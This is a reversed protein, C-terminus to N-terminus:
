GRYCLRAEISEGICHSVSCQPKTISVIMGVNPKAVSQRVV